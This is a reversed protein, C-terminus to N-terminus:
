NKLLGDRSPKALYSPPYTTSNVSLHGLPRLHLVPFATYPLVYRPNSDRGRREIELSKRLEKIPGSLYLRKKPEDLCESVASDLQHRSPAIMAKPSDRGSAPNIGCIVSPPLSNRSVRAAHIFRLDDTDNVGPRSTRSGQEEFCFM